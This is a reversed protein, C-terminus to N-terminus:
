GFGEAINAPASRASEHIQECFNRDRRVRECETLQFVKEKVQESLQWAVLEEFRRATTM